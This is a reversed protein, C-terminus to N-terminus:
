FSAKQLNAKILGQLGKDLSNLFQECENFTIGLPPLIRLVDPQSFGTIIHYDDLLIQRVAKASVNFEIGLMLGRGRVQKVGPLQELEKKLFRGQASANQVLNEDVITKLVSIAAACALQGGGFTTGLMGKELEFAQHILTGAVPFGNGMGKAVTIIDAQIHHYQHAFFDGSRGYGSQIEDAILLTGTQSCLKRALQWFDTSAEFVGNVGQIGEIIFAAYTKTELYSQLLHLCEMPIFDVEMQSGFSARIKTNDTVAVAGASRGHFAGKLALIKSRGTIFSATKLANENAEAGSNSLFLAYDSYGSVEGLLKALDDQLPNQFANSYFALKELQNKIAQVFNEHGHGISIVGHGGYFDLYQKGHSDNVYCAKGSTLEISYQQYIDLMKM